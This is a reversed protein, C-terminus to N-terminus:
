SGCRELLEIPEAKFSADKKFLLSGDDRRIQLRYGAHRIFHGPYNVSEYATYGPIFRNPRPYFTADKDFIHANRPNKSSELNVFYGYHRLYSCPYDVSNFSVTGPQGTLGPVIHFVNGSFGQKIYADGNPHLGWTYDPYNQSRLRVFTGTEQAHVLNLSVLVAVTAICLSFM